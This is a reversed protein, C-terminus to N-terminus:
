ADALVAGAGNPSPVPIPNHLLPPPQFIPLSSIRRGRWGLNELHFVHFALHEQSDTKLTGYCIQTDFQHVGPEMYKAWIIYFLLSYIQAITSRAKRTGVQTMLSNTINHAHVVRGAFKSTVHLRVVGLAKGPIRGLCGFKTCCAYSRAM